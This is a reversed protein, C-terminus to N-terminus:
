GVSGVVAAGRAGEREAAMLDAVHCVFNAATGVVGKTHPVRYMGSQLEPHEEAYARAEELSVGREEQVREIEQRAKVRAEGLAMQV